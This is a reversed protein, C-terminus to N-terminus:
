TPPTAALSLQPTYPPQSSSADAPDKHIRSTLWLRLVRKPAKDSLNLLIYIELLKRTATLLLNHLHIQGVHNSATETHRPSAWGEGYGCLSTPSPNVALADTSARIVLTHEELM